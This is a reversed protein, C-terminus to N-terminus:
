WNYFRSPNYIPKDESLPMWVKKKKEWNMGKIKKKEPRGEGEHKAEKIVFKMHAKKLKLTFLRGRAGYARKRRYLGKGVWAKGIYLKKPDMMKYRWAHDRATCLSNMIKKSAKKPSFQMQSIAYNVNKGNIQRALMNLKRPAIRFDMTSYNHETHKKSAETVVPKRFPNCLKAQQRGKTKAAEMDDKGEVM